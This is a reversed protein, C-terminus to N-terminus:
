KKPLQKKRRAQRYRDAHVCHSAARKIQASPESVSM